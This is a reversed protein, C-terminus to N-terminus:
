DNMWKELIKMNLMTEELTMAPYYLENKGELISNSLNEIEHSFINEYSKVEIKYNKEANVEILGNTKTCYYLIQNINKKHNKIFNKLDVNLM